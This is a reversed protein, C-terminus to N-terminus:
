PDPLKAILFDPILFSGAISFVLIFLLRM